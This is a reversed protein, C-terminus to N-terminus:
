WTSILKTICLLNFNFNGDYSGGRIELDTTLILAKIFGNSSPHEPKWSTGGSVAV